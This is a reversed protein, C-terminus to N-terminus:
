GRYLVVGELTRDLESARPAAGECYLWASTNTLLGGYETRCFQIADRVNMIRGEVLPPHFRLRRAGAALMSEAQSRDFVTATVRFGELSAQTVFRIEREYGLGKSTLEETLPVGYLGVSPWNAVEVLGANRLRRWVDGVSQFPDVAFVGACISQPLDRRGELVQFLRGNADHIPLLALASARGAPLGHM